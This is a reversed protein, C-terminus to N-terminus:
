GTPCRRVKESSERPVNKVSWAVLLLLLLLIITSTHDSWCVLRLVRSAMCSTGAWCAVQVLFSSSILLLLHHCRRPLCGLVVNVIQMWQPCRWGAHLLLITSLLWTSASQGRQLVHVLRLHFHSFRFGNLLATTAMMESLMQQSSLLEVVVKGIAHLLM